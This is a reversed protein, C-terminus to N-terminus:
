NTKEFEKLENLLYEIDVGKKQAADGIRSNAMSGWGYVKINNKEFVEVTEPSNQVVNIIKEDASIM